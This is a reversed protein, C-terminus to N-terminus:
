GAAVALAAGRLRSTKLGVTPRPTRANSLPRRRRSCNGPASSTTPEFRQLVHDLMALLLQLLIGAALYFNNQFSAAHETFQRRIRELIAPDGEWVTALGKACGLLHLEILAGEPL